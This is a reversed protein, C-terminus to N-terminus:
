SANWAVLKKEADLCLMFTYLVFSFSICKLPSPSMMHVFLVNHRGRLYIVPGEDCHRSGFLEMHGQPHLHRGVNKKRTKKKKKRGNERM